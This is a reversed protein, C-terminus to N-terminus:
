EPFVGMWQDLKILYEQVTQVESGLPGRAGQLIIPGKFDYKKMQIFLQDFLADGQGLPVTGGNLTRDKIHVDAVKAGYTGWEEEVDFGLSASNGIDYNVKVSSHDISDLLKKFDKPSLDTELSLTMRKEAALDLAPRLNKILLEQDQSSKLSSEDVFPLVITWVSLRSAAEILQHLKFCADQGEQFLPYHMFYDACISLVQVGSTSIANLIQMQGVETLLPHHDINQGDFIFEICDLGIEKAKLFEEPWLDKPFSQIQEDVPPLLRGQMLGRHISM